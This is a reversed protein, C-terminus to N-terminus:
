QILKGNKFRMASKQGNAFLVTANGDPQGNVFNVLIKTGDPSLITGKGALKGNKAKGTFKTGDPLSITTAGNLDIGEFGSELKVGDTSAISVTHKQKDVKEVKYGPEQTALKSEPESSASPQPPQTEAEPETVEAPSTKTSSLYNSSDAKISNHGIAELFSKLYRSSFELINSKGSQENMRVTFGSEVHQELFSYSIPVGVVQMYHGGGLFNPDSSRLQSDDMHILKAQEGGIFSASYYNVSSRGGMMGSLKAHILCCALVGTRKDKTALLRYNQYQYNGADATESINAGWYTINKDYPSDAIDVGVCGALVLTIVTLKVAQLLALPRQVVTIKM